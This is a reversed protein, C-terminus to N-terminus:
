VGPLSRYHAVLWDLLAKDRTADRLLNGYKVVAAAVIQDRLETDSFAGPAPFPISSANSWVLGVGRSVSESLTVDLTTVIEKGGAQEHVTLDMIRSIELILAKNDTFPKNHGALYERRVGRILTHADVGADWAKRLYLDTAARIKDERSMPAGGVTVGPTFTKKDFKSTGSLRRPLEEYHAANKVKTAEDLEFFGSSAYYVHDDVSANAFHAAEHIVTAKTENRDKVQTISLLLHMKKEAFSAWGGLGVEPDDLNYDTTVEADMKATSTALDELVKRAAAYNTKATADQAGFVQTLGTADAEVAKVDAAADKMASQLAPKDVALVKTDADTVSKYIKSRDSVDIANNFEAEDITGPSPFIKAVIAAVPEKSKLRGEKEMRQLLQTVRAKIVAEPIKLTKDTYAAKIRDFAPLRFRVDPAHMQAAVPHVLASFPVKIAAGAARDRRPDFADSEIEAAASRQEQTREREESASLSCRISQPPCADPEQAVAAQAAAPWVVRSRRIHTRM